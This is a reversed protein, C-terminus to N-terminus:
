SPTIEEECGEKSDFLSKETGEKSGKKMIRKQRVTVKRCIRGEKRRGEKRRGERADKRGEKTVKIRVEMDKEGEERAEKRKGMKGEERGEKRKVM